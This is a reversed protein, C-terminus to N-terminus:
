ITTFSTMARRPTFSTMASSVLAKAGGARTTRVAGGKRVSKSENSRYDLCQACKVTLMLSVHFSRERFIKQAIEGGTQLFGIFFERRDIFAFGAAALRHVGNITARM